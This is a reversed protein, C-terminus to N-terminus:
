DDAARAYAALLDTEEGRTLGRNPPLGDVWEDRARVGTEYWELVDRATESLPRASLGYREAKTTDLRCYGEVADGPLWYPFREWTAGEDHALLWEPDVRHLTPDGPVAAQLTEVFTGFTLPDPRTVTFAGAASAELLNATCAALDRADLLQLPQDDVAPVVVDGGDYLRALWSTFYHVPDHPGVLMGPRVFLSATEGFTERVVAECAAKNRAYETHWWDVGDGTPPATQLPATEDIGPEATPEYAAISSVFVYQDVADALYDVSRAVHDPTYGCTDVVVDWTRSGLADLDTERDGFVRDVAPFLDPNTEGRHFFTLDHDRALLETALHRGVYQTGGIILIDM